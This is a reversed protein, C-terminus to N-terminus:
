LSRHVVVEGVHMDPAGLLLPQVSRRVWAQALRNSEEAGAQTDFISVSIQISQGANVLYYAQFGPALSIIPLFHEHVQRRVEDPQSTQYYRISAYM